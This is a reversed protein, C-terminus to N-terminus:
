AKPIICNSKRTRSLIEIMESNVSDLRVKTYFKEIEKTDFNKDVLDCLKLLNKDDEWQLDMVDYLQHFDEDKILEQGSRNFEEHWNVGFHINALRTFKRDYSNLVVIKIINDTEDVKWLKRKIEDDITVISAYGYFYNIHEHVTIVECSCIGNHLDEIKEMIKRKVIEHYVKNESQAQNRIYCSIFDAILFGASIVFDLLKFKREIEEDRDLYNDDFMSEIIFQAIFFESITKHMFDIFIGDDKPDSSFEVNVFGYRQIKHSTWNKKENKWMKVILFYDVKEQYVPDSEIIDKIALLQHVHWINLRSNPTYDEGSIKASLKNKQMEIMASYLEYRNNMDHRSPDQIFLKTIMTIMLTNDIEEKSISNLELHSLCNNIGEIMQSQTPKDSIKKSELINIILQIKEDKSYSAFKHVSVGFTEKLKEAYHPRTSIWLQNESVSEKWSNLIEMLLQEYKPCVEDIGDLLLIVKGAVFRKGFIKSKEDEGVIESLIQLLEQETLSGIKHNFKEFVERFKRLKVYSVWSDKEAAKLKMAYDMFTTTKGNGAHDALIFIKSSKVENKVAEFDKIPNREYNKFLRNPKSKAMESEIFRRDVIKDIVM